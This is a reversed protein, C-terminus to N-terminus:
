LTLAKLGNTASSTRKTSTAPTTSVPRPSNSASCDLVCAMRSLSRTLNTVSVSVLNRANHIKLVHSGASSSRM